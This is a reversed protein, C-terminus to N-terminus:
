DAVAKTASKLLSAELEARVEADTEQSLRDRLLTDTAQNAICGLAWACAGRVLPEPDNLGRSLAPISSHSKQNGLAIAANRLLGCRRPRWLPTQRFRARFQEDTLFFLEDLKLPDLEDAACFCPDV